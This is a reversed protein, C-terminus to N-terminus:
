PADAVPPYTAVPGDVLLRVETGAEAGAGDFTRASIRTPSGGALELQLVTEAGYFSQGIVRAAVGDASTLAHLMYVPRIQDGREAARAKALIVVTRAKDTFREFM